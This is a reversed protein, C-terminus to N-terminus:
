MSSSFLHEASRQITTCSPGADAVAYNLTLSPAAFHDIGIALVFLRGHEGTGSDATALDM